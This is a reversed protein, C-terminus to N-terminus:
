FGSMRMSPAKPTTLEIVLNGTLLRRPRPFPVRKASNVSPVVFVSSNLSTSAQFPEVLGGSEDWGSPDFGSQRPATSSGPTPAFVNVALNGGLAAPDPLHSVMGQQSLVIGSELGS